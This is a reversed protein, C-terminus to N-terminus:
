GKLLRAKIGDIELAVRQEAAFREVDAMVGPFMPAYDDALLWGGSKLLQWYLALDQYVDGPEHSGDIYLLDATVGCDALYRAGGRSDMPLPCLYPWLGSALANALWVKYVEPRGNVHRLHARWEPHGWLVREALWTDVCVVVADLHERQLAAAFHRSSVGLFSGVEVIVRPRLEAVATDFIPAHSDWQDTPDAWGTPDFGDFPEAAGHLRRVLDTRAATM